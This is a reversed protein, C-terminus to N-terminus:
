SGNSLNSWTVSGSDGTDGSYVEVDGGNFNTQDDVFGVQTPHIYM